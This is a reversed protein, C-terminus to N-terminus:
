LFDREDARVSLVPCPAHRLIKEAVSGLLVHKLGTYGHTALIIMDSKMEKAIEIVEQWARGLRVIHHTKVGSGEDLARLKAIVQERKETAFDTVALPPYMWDGPYVMQEVIHVLAVEAGFQSAFALAYRLAKQSHESFDVPVLIRKLQFQLPAMAEAPASAIKHGKKDTVILKAASSSSSLKKPKM